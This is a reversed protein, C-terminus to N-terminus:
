GGYMKLRYLEHPSISGGSYYNDLATQEMRNRNEAEIFDQQRKLLALQALQLDRVGRQDYLNVGTQGLGILLGLKSGARRDRLENWAMKSRESQIDKRFKLSEQAMRNAIGFEDLARIRNAESSTFSNTIKRTDPNVSYDSANMRDRLAAQYQPNNYNIKRFTNFSTM